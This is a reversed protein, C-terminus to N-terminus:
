GLAPRWGITRVWVFRVQVAVPQAARGADANGQEAVGAIDDHGLLLRARTLGDM